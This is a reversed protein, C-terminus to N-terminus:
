EVLLTFLSFNNKNIGISLLEYAQMKLRSDPISDVAQIEDSM